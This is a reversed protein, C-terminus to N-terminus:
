LTSSIEVEFVTDTNTKSNKTDEFNLGNGIALAKLEIGGNITGSAKVFLKFGKTVNFTKTWTGVELNESKLVGVADRYEITPSDSLTGTVVASLTIAVVDSTTSDDNSCSTLVTLILLLYISKNM